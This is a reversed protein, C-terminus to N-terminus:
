HNPLNQTLKIQAENHGFDIVVDKNNILNLDHSKDAQIGFRPSGNRETHVIKEKAVIKM